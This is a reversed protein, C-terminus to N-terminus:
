DAQSKSTYAELRWLKPCGAEYDVACFTRFAIRNLGSQPDRVKVPLDDLLLSGGSLSAGPRYPESVVLAFVEVWDMVLSGHWSLRLEGTSPDSRLRKARERAVLAADRCTSGAGVM